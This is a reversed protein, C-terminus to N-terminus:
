ASAPVLCPRRVTSTTVTFNVGSRMTISGVGQGDLIAGATVIDGSSTAVNCATIVCSATSVAVASKGEGSVVGVGGKTEGKGV